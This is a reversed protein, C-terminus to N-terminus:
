RFRLSLGTGVFYDAAADNSRDRYYARNGHPSHLRDELDGLFKDIEGHVRRTQRIVLVAAAPARVQSAQSARAPAEESAELSVQPPSVQGTEPMRDTSIGGEGPGQSVSGATRQALDGDDLTVKDIQPQTGDPLQGWSGVAVYRPLMRRFETAQRDSLRYFRVEVQNLDPEPLPRQRRAAQRHDDIIKAVDTLAQQNQRVILRQGPLGMVSGGTHGGFWDGHVSEAILTALKPLEIASTFDSVDFIEVCLLQDARERTTIKLLGAEPFAACEWGEVDALVLNLAAGLSSGALSLTVAAKPDLERERLAIPDLRFQIGLPETLRRLVEALPVEHFECNVKQSLAEEVKRHALPQAVRIRRGTAQLGALLCQVELQSHRDLVTTLRGGIFAVTGFDGDVNWSQSLNAELIDIIETMRFGSALLPSVDHTLSSHVTDAKDRTTLQVIGDKLCWDLERGDLDKLAQELVDAISVGAAKISIRRDLMVGVENLARADVWVPLGSAEQLIEAFRPITAGEIDNKLKRNLEPPLFQAPDIYVVKNRDPSEHVGHAPQTEAANPAADSPNIQCPWIATSLFLMLSNSILLIGCM